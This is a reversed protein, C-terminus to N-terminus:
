LEIKTIIYIKTSRLRSLIADSSAVILLDSVFCVTKEKEIVFLIDM